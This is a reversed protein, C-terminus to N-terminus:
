SRELLPSEIKRGAHLEDLLSQKPLVKIAVVRDLSEQHAEFVIGM